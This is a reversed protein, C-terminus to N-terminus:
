HNEKLAWNEYSLSKEKCNVVTSNTPFARLRFLHKPLETFLSPATSLNWWRLLLLCEPFKPRLKRLCNTMMNPRKSLSLEFTQIIMISYVPLGSTKQSYTYPFIKIAIVIYALPLGMHFPRPIWKTERLRPPPSPPKVVATPRVWPTWSSTGSNKTM